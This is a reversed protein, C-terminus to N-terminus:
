MKLLKNHEDVVKITADLKREVNDLRDSNDDVKEEIDQLRPLVLIELAECIMAKTNKREAILSNNISNDILKKTNKREEVLADQILVKTNIREEILANGILKKTFVREKKFLKELQKIETKDFAM